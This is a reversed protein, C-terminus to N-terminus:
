SPRKKTVWKNEFPDFFFYQIHEFVADALSNAHNSDELAKEIIGATENQDGEYETKRFLAHALKNRSELIAKIRDGIEENEAYKAYIKALEGLGMKDIRKEDVPYAMFETVHDRIMQEFTVVAHRLIFELYQFNVMADYIDEKSEREM